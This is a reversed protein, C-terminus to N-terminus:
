KGPGWAYMEVTELDNGRIYSDLNSRAKGRIFSEFEFGLQGSSDGGSPALVTIASYLVADLHDNWENIAIAIGSTSSESECWRSDRNAKPIIRCPRM